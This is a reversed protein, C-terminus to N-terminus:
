RQRVPTRFQAPGAPHQPKPPVTPTPKAHHASPPNLALPPSKPAFGVVTTVYDSGPKGNHAGDLLIGSSNAVGGPNSGIVRLTYRRFLNLLEAPVLTVTHASPDYVASKLAIRRGNPAIISYNSTKQASAPDLPESFTLVLLTPVLRQGYRQVSVVQPPPLIPGLVNITFKRSDTHAPEETDRVFVTVTYKGPHLKSSPKWTLVGTHANLAMGAPAGAGLSFVLNGPRNMQAAATGGTLKLQTTVTQGARVTANPVPQLLIPAVGFYLFNPPASAGRNLSIPYGDAPGTSKTRPDPLLLRVRGTTGPKLGPFSFLGQANTKTSPDGPDLKGDGKLDIFVTVGPVGKSGAGLQPKGSPNQYVMGSVSALQLNLFNVTYQGNAVTNNVPVQTLVTKSTNNMLWYGGGGYSSEGILLDLNGNGNFDGVTLGNPQSGLALLDFKYNNQSTNFQAVGHSDNGLNIYTLTQGYGGGTPNEEMTIDPKGDGDIDAVVIQNIKFNRGTFPGNAPLSPTNSSAFKDDLGMWDAVGTQELVYLNPVTGSSYASTVADLLGDGNLDGIAVPGGNAPVPIPLDPGSFTGIATGTSSGFTGDGHGYAVWANTGSLDFNIFLDLYGDRNFDGTAVSNPAIAPASGFTFSRATPILIETGVFGSKTSAFSVVENCTALFASSYGRAIVSFDDIGDGNYDGVSGIGVVSTVSAQFTFSFQFIQQVNSFNFGNASGPILEGFAADPSVVLLLLSTYGNGTFDGAVMQVTTASSPLTLPTTVPTSFGGSGNGYAVVVSSGGGNIGAWDLKGDNNFDASVMSTIAGTGTHVKGVTLDFSASYPAVQKWGTPPLEVVIYSGPTLGSFTYNGSSDTIKSKLFQGASNELNVTWGSLPIAGSGLSQFIPNGTVSGSITAGAVIAFNNGESLGFQNDLTVSYSLKGATSPFYGPLLNYGVVNTADVPVGVLEYNGNSLTVTSMASAGFGVTVTVGAVGPENSEQVGDQNLDNFVTGAITAARWVHLNVTAPNGSYTFVSWTPGGNVGEYNEPPVVVGVTYAPKQFWIGGVPAGPRIAYQADALVIDPAGPVDGLSGIALSNPQANNYLLNFQYQTNSDDNFHALGGTNGLNYFTLTQGPGSDYPSEALVIDPKSDGNMDAIAIQPIAFTRGTFKANVGLGQTTASVPNGSMDVWSGVSSQQYIYVFSTVPQGTSTSYDSAVAGLLGGSLSALAAPGGNRPVPISVNPQGGQGPGFTGDGNGYFVYDTPATGGSAVGFNVFLDPTGDNNLDGIAVAHDSISPITGVKPTPVNYERSIWGVGVANFSVADIFYQGAAPDLGYVVFSSDTGPRFDNGAAMGYYTRGGVGPIFLTQSTTFEQGAQGGYYVTVVGSNSLTILDTFGDSNFDGAELDVINKATTSIVQSPAFTGDGNGNMFQIQGANQLFVALDLASDGNFKGLVANSTPGNPRFGPTLGTQFSLNEGADNYFAYVGQANTIAIPDGPVYTGTAQQDIYVTYGGLPQNEGDGTETLTGTLTPSPSFSTPDNSQTPADFGDNVVSYFYYTGPVLDLVDLQLPQYVVNYDGTQGTPKFTTSKAVAVGNLNSNDSSPNRTTMYLTATVQHANIFTPNVAVQQTFNLATSSATHALGHISSPAGYGALSTWVIANADVPGLSQLTVTYQGSSPLPNPSTSLQIGLISQGPPATLGWITSAKVSNKSPGTPPAIYGSAHEIFTTGDPMQIKLQYNIGSTNIWQTIFSFSTAGAPQSNSGTPITFTQYYNHYTQGQNAGQELNKVDSNNLLSVDQTEINYEVGFDGIVPLGIWAAFFGSPDGNNEDYQFLFNATGLHKGGILPVFDPVNLGAQASLLINGHKFQFEGEVDFLGDAFSGNVTITYTEASWDLVAQGDVSTNIKSHLNGSSDVSALIAVDGTLILEHKDVTFGGVAQVIRVGNIQQGFGLGISGSLSWNSTGLGDLEGSISTVFIDTDGIPVSGVLTLGIEQIEFSGNVFTFQFNGGVGWGGPLGIQATGALTFDPGSGGTNTSFTLAFKDISFAGLDLDSMALTVGNFQVVGSQSIDIGPLGKSNQLTASFTTGAVTLSLGGSLTFESDNVPDYSVSLNQAQVELGGLPFKATESIGANFETVAWDTVTLGPLSQSGLDATVSFAFASSDADAPDSSDGSDTEVTLSGWIKFNGLNHGTQFELTLNDPIFDVGLFTFKKSISLALGTVDFGDSANLYLYNSGTVSASILGTPQDTGYGLTFSLTGQLKLSEAGDNPDTGFGISKITLGFPGASFSLTGELGATSFDGQVLQNSDFVSNSLGSMLPVTPVDKGTMAAKISGTVSFTTGSTAFSVQGGDVELMPMFKSQDKEFSGIQVRQGALSVQQSGVQSFDGLFCLIQGQPIFSSALVIREELAEWSFRTRQASRRRRVADQAPGTVRQQRRRLRFVADSM